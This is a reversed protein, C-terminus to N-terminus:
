RCRGRCKRRRWRRRFVENYWLVQLLEEIKGPSRDSAEVTNGDPLRLEGPRNQELRKQIKMQEREMRDRDPYEDYIWSGEYDLEDCAKEVAEQAQLIEGSYWSKLINWERDEWEEGIENPWSYAMYFPMSRENFM